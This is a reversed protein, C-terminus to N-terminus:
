DLVRVVHEEALVMATQHPLDVREGTQLVRDHEVDLVPQLVEVRTPRENRAIERAVRALRLAGPSTESFPSGSMCPM